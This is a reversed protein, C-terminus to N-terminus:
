FASQQRTRWGTRPRFYGDTKLHESYENRNDQVSHGKWLLQGQVSAAM